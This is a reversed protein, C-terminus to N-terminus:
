GRVRTELHMVVFIGCATRTNGESTEGGGRKELIVSKNPRCLVRLKKNNFGYVQVEDNM